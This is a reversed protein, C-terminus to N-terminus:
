LDVNDREFYNGQSAVRRGLRQEWERYCHQSTKMHFHGWSTQWSRKSTAWLELIVIKSTSNSNGSFSYTVRVWIVRTHPGRFWQFVRKPWFNTWPSPLTFPLTTTISFGLTRLKQGSMIFGREPGSLSRVITSNILHEDKLCSNRIFLLNVTSFVFKAHIQNETQENKSEEPATLQEHAVGFKTTQNRSRVDGTNRCTQFCKRWKRHTWSSGPVCEMPNGKTPQHCKQFWSQVLKGCAWNRPWFTTSPKTIWIWSVVSCELQWVDILGWSLGWKPWMKTRKKHSLDERVLNTKRMRVAMRFHQVGGLFRHGRYLMSEM